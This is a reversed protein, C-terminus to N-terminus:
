RKFDKMKLLYPLSKDDPGENWFNLNPTMGAKPLDSEVMKRETPKSTPKDSGKLMEPRNERIWILYRADNEELWELTKGAHKGTRIVFKLNM